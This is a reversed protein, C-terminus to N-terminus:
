LSKVFECLEKSLLQDYLEDDSLQLSSLHVFGANPLEDAMERLFGFESPSGVGVLQWYIPQHQSNRLVAAAEWRDNNAGDTIFLAMAPQVAPAASKAPSAPTQVPASKGGFLSGFFGGRASQAPQGPQGFYFDVMSQMVGAYYTTGWKSIGNNALIERKIYDEYDMKGVSALPDFNSDFSWVDMEGNDDFRMAVPVLRDITAQMTGNKYLHQASGSVDLAVGVRMVPTTKIARKDLVFKISEQRKQLDFVSM